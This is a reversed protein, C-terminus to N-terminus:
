RDASATASPPSPPPPTPWILTIVESPDDRLRVYLTRGRLAPVTLTQEVFGEPVSVADAFAPNSSVSDLLFLKDGTITCQKSPAPLCHMDKIQPIRVLDALPQWEGTVGDGGVPRMKLPGFASPGLHKMPDLVALETKSDELTLNGELVSLLVRFSEDLTAVEIKQQPSFAEPVQAKLVFNLRADQPLEDPNGLKVTLASASPDFQVSKSILKVRPRRPRITTSLFLVRADNLTVKAQITDAANLSAPGADDRTVMKLEDQQNARTLGAPAFYIGKLELDKVQDLRTGKLIGETDGAHLKFSEFSGAEAYTHLTVEDPAPHEGFKKLVVVVSGPAATELPVHVELEDPKVAKWSVNTKAGQANRIVVSEVCAAQESQLHLIDSRGVILASADKSAVIWQETIQSSRLHYTPGEFPQFGWIGRVTGVLEDNLTDPKISATDVVLGGRSPDVRAPLDVGSSGTAKTQLHLVFDHALESAFVLPAGEIPLVLDPREACFIQKPDVAHLPPLPSPGISPLGVVLVSKPNRFSPPNNLRLNLKDGKPLALAPIYQYKATHTSSLIKVLDVVAGVYPSYSGAGVLPMYAIHSALDVSDGSAIRAVMTETHADDLVLQDTNQLLCPVQQASPKDFCEHDLKINLSRALLVTRERLEVPDTSLERLSTLYNELRLRDLSAQQLDQASRVFAGPKGRVANRLTAFDGGTEPALFILAQEAEDPVVVFVGEEHVSKNWTEVKTFWNAPPPNTAGRLFAVIMVYHASQSEPLQPHIWLRDGPMLNPVHSIPLTEGARQVRVDVAPGALDFAATQAHLSSMPLFLFAVILRLLSFRLAM